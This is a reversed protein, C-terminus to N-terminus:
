KIVTVADAVPACDASAAITTWTAASTAVVPHLEASLMEVITIDKNVAMAAPTNM